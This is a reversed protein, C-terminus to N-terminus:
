RRGSLLNLIFIWDGTEIALKIEKKWCINFLFLLIKSRFNAEAILKHPVMRLQGVKIVDCFYGGGAVVKNKYREPFVEDPM